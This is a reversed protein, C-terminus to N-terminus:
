PSAAGTRAPKHVTLQMRIERVVNFHSRVLASAQAQNIEGRKLQGEYPEDLVYESRTVEFDVDLYLSLPSDSFGGKQKELTVARDFLKLMQPTIPRVHTPDNMFHDHRPHPVHILIGAGHRCVRYLEQMIALFVGSQQGMHELAHIFVVEDVSDTAWPWPTRELDVVEDPECVPSADVNIFGAHKNLGCGLNLRM